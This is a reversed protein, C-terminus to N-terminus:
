DVKRRDVAYSSKPERKAYQKMETAVSVAEGYHAFSRVRTTAIGISIGALPLRQLKGKRDEVEVYGREVDEPDYFGQIERDFTEVVLAAVDEAVDPPVVAVFDDGGVHGVFGDAGARGVVADQLIRATAQILRDGQVFGKQDNYAKFNDLDAYLVAFPSEERVMREIEEQIRINGPLGTLPSLNRMEKARRLTGKVRALLEIPDFPKIIYDDAGATLGLVKDTALAKATLMIISTNSTHPNRRLRHAVEFGDIRPMMVDLLVLDPRMGAAKELAEEGDSAVSVEYGASRLNVEVFRAIDPDDDVVLISEPMLGDGGGRGEARPGIPGSGGRRLDRDRRGPRRRGAQVCRAVTELNVGGDVHVEVDLGRRDIESRIAEIKAVAGTQFPQGAWGPEVALVVVDDADELFAFAAEAPTRPALAMGARMGLGRVRRQTPAPDSVAELHFSVADAGAEALEDLFGDPAEVQLHAHLPRDTHPRLAAVVVPGITLPPVFHGDMVDIHILDAHEGVLKVEEALRALDASLISAGLKAM